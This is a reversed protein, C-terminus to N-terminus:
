QVRSSARKLSVMFSHRQMERFFQVPFPIRICEEHLLLDPFLATFHWSICYVVYTVWHVINWDAGYDEMSVPKRGSVLELLVVGFSYVDSKETLQQNAYYRTSSFM